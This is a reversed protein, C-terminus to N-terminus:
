SDTILRGEENLLQALVFESSIDSDLNHRGYRAYAGVSVALCLVCVLLACFVGFWKPLRLRMKRNRWSGRMRLARIRKLKLPPQDAACATGACALLLRLLRAATSRMKTNRM